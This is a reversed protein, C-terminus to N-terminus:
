KKNINQRLEDRGKRVVQLTKELENQLQLMVDDAYSFAGQTVEKAISKSNDIIEDSQLKALKVVESEGAIRELKLKASEVITEAENSAENLIREKERLIWEAEHIASPTLARLRDIFSYLIDEHIILKGTMPIRSCEEIMNEIEDILRLIDM